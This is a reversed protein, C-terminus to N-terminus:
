NVELLVGFDCIPIMQRSAALAKPAELVPLRSKLKGPGRLLFNLWVQRQFKFQLATDYMAFMAVQSKLNTKSCATLWQMPLTTHRATWVDLIWM